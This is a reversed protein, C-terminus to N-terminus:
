RGIADGLMIKTIKGYGEEDILWEKMSEVVEELLENRKFEQTIWIQVEVDFCDDSLTEIIGVIKKSRDRVVYIVDKSYDDRADKIRILWKDKFNEIEKDTLQNSKYRPQGKKGLVASFKQGRMLISRLTRGGEEKINRYLNSM